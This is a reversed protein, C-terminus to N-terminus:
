NGGIDIDACFGLVNFKSNSQSVIRFMWNFDSGLSTTYLQTGPTTPITYTAYSTWNRGGDNSYELTFTGSGINTEVDIQLRNIFIRRGGYYLPPTIITKIITTSGQSGGATETINYIDGSQRLLDSFLYSGTFTFGRSSTTKTLGSYGLAHFDRKSWIGTTLDYTFTRFTTLDDLSGVTWDIFGHGNSVYSMGHCYLRTTTLSTITSSANQVTNLYSQIPTTTINEPLYGNMKVFYASGKDDIALFYLGGFIKVVSRNDALGIPILVDGIKEFPFTASPNNWWVEITESGMLWLRGEYNTLGVLRDPRTSKSSFSLANWSLSNSVVSVQFNISDKQAVIVYDNLTCMDICDDPFDADTITSFTNTGVNYSYGAVGTTLIIQNNSSSGGTIVDMKVDWKSYPFSANSNDISSSIVTSIGPPANSIPIKIFFNDWVGYVTNNLSLLGRCFENGSGGGGDSVPNVYVDYGPLNYAVLPYKGKFKDPELYMNTLQSGNADISKATYDSNLLDITGSLGGQENRELPM